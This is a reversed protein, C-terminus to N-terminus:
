GPFYRIKQLEKTYTSRSFIESEPADFLQWAPMRDKEQRLERM